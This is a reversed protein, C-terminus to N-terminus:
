LRRAHAQGGGGNPGYGAVVREVLEHEAEKVLALAAAYDIGKEAMKAQVKEHLEQRPDEDQDAPRDSRGVETLKVASGPKKDKFFDRVKTDSLDWIGEWQPRDAPALRGTRVLETFFVDKKQAKAETMLQDAMAAKPEVEKLRKEHETLRIQVSAADERLTTSSQSLKKAAAALEALTAGKPLGLAAALEGLEDESKAKAAEEEEERRKREAEQEEPTMEEALMRAFADQVEKATASEGLDLAKRFVPLVKDAM